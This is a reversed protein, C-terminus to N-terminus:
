YVIVNYSRKSRHLPRPGWFAGSGRPRSATSVERGRSLPACTLAYSSLAYHQFMPIAFSGICQRRIGKSTYSQSVEFPIRVSDTELERLRAEEFLVFVRTKLVQSESTFDARALSHLGAADSWPYEGAGSELSPRSRHLLHMAADRRTAWELSAFCKRTDVPMRSPGSRFESTGARKSAIRLVRQGKLYTLAYSSLAFHQFM